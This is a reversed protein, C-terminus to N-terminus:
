YLIGITANLGYSRDTAATVSRTAALSNPAAQFAIGVQNFAGALQLAYHPGLLIQAGAAVDFALITGRGYSTATGIQGSNMVLPLDASAFAAVSSTAAFRVVGGVAFATYDVDPMDLQDPTMLTSRDAKFWRRWYAAGVAASADGFVFRYRAGIQYHGDKISPTLVSGPVQISLGVTQAYDGYFGLGAAGGSPTDFSFPYVEGGIRGAPAATGVRPPSTMGSASWTLTRRAIEAGVDVWVAGATMPNRTGRHKRKRHKRGGEEEDDDSAKRVEEDAVRKKPRDEDDAHKKPRDEDAHKKPEDGVESFRKPQDDDDPDEDGGTMEDIKRDLKKSLDKKLTKSSGITVDITMSKKGKGSLVLSLHKKGGVKEVKGHVIVEVELEIRLKKLAKKNLESLSLKDMAKEVKTPRTVIAHDDAADVLVSTIKGDPDGELPAVAVKPKAVAVAPLVVLLTLVFWRM